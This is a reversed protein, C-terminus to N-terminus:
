FFVKLEFLTIGKIKGSGYESSSNGWSFISQIAVKIDEKVLYEIKPGARGSWDDMPLLGELSINLTELYFSKRISGFLYNKQPNNENIRKNTEMIFSKNTLALLPNEKLQNIGSLLVEYQDHSLGIDNHYYELIFDLHHESVSYRAGAVYSFFLSNQGEDEYVYGTSSTFKPIPLDRGKQVAGELHIELEDSVYKSLFAGYVKKKNEKMNFTLGIDAGLWSTTLKSHHRYYDEIDDDYQIMYLLHLPGLHSDLRLLNIGKRNEMPDFLKKPPNFVDTPNWMIGAGWDVKQRGVTLQLPMMPLAVNIYGENLWLDTSEKDSSFKHEFETELLLKIYDWRKVFSVDGTVVDEWETQKVDKSLNLPSSLNMEYVWVRNRLFGSFNELANVQVPIIIILFFIFSKM